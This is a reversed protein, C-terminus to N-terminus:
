RVLRYTVTGIFALIAFAPGVAFFGTMAAETSRDHRNSNLSVLLVGALVGLLYAGVSVLLAMGFTKM